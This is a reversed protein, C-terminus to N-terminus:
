TRLDLEFWYRGKGYGWNTALSEVLYLGWGSEAGPTPRIGGALRPEGARSPNLVDVRLRGRAVAAKVQIRDDPALGAHRISNSVLESVLLQADELVPDPLPLECLVRRAESLMSPTPPVQLDVSLAGQSASRRSQGEM